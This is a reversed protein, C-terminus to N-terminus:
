PADATLTGDKWQYWTYPQQQLDGSANFRVPGITTITENGATLWTSMGRGDNVSRAKAAAAFTEVAAYAALTAGEALPLLTTPPNDRLFTIRTGNGAEIAKASYSESQLLDPGFFQVDLNLKRISKAIEAADPAQLALYIASAGILGPDDPLKADNAKINLVKANPLAGLFRKSIAATEALGDNIMYVDSALGDAKIRAAAIDAQADDRGTLRFVNWLSKSTLEPATVSTNMMLIGASLYTPAAALSASTCFHGVVMRVDKSVFSNAVEVARKADCADDGEVLTLPEGNIGGGANVAAVAAAAGTRLENGYAANQGSLPGAVGILIEAQAPLAYCLYFLLATFCRL